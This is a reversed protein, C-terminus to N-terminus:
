RNSRETEDITMLEWREIPYCPGGECVKEEPRDHCIVCNRQVFGEHQHLFRHFAKPEERELWLLGDRHEHISEILQDRSITKSPIDHAAVWFYFLGVGIVVLGFMGLKFQFRGDHNNM